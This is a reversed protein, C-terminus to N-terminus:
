KREPSCARERQMALVCRGAVQVWTPYAPCAPATEADYATNLTRIFSEESENDFLYEAPINERIPPIDSAVCALGARLSEVPPMGFGEYASFYVSVKCQGTMLRQLEQQPLRGHCIWSPSLPPCSEPLSGIVHIRIDAATERRQALWAQLRSVGLATLKHPFPSAFFLLDRGREAPAVAAAQTDFGIGVVATRAQPAYHSFRGANFRTSTLVLDSVALARLGLTRFYLLQHLPFPNGAEGRKGEYYEWIVDHVYCALKTHGVRPFFPPFGKPLIAWDPKIRRIAASVGVQDWWVRSFRRPVPHDSLHVHVHPPSDAFADACSDNGLLHLEDVGDCQMLGRVLGLSVNFIGLSKTAHFSQDTLSLLLKM